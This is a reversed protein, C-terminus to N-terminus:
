PRTIVENPSSPLVFNVGAQANTRLTAQIDLNSLQVTKTWFGDRWYEGRAYLKGNAIVYDTVQERRGDRYVLTVPTPDNQATQARRSNTRLANENRVQGTAASESYDAIATERQGSFRVYKDGQWEIMLPEPRPEAPAPPASPQVVIVSSSPADNAVSQAPYDAYWFPDALFVGRSSSHGYGSRLGPGIRIGGGNHFSGFGGRTQAASCAALGAIVLAILLWKPM